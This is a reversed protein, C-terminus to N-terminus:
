HCPLLEGMQRERHGAPLGSSSTFSSTFVTAEMTLAFASRAASLLDTSTLKPLLAVSSNWARAVAYAAPTSNIQAQWSAAVSDSTLM